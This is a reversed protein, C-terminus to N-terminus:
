GQASFWGEHHFRFNVAWPREILRFGVHGFRQPITEFEHVGRLLLQSLSIEVAIGPVAPDVIEVLDLGFHSGPLLSFLALDRIM